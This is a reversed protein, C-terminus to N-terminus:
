WICFTGSNKIWVILTFLIYIFFCKKHLLILNFIFLTPLFVYLTSSIFCVAWAFNYHVCLFTKLNSIKGYPFYGHYLRLAEMWDCKGAKCLPHMDTKTLCFEVSAIKLAIHLMCCKPLREMLPVHLSLIVLRNDCAVQNSNVTSLTM